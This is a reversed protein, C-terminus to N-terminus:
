QLLIMSFEPKQQYQSAPIAGHSSFTLSLMEYKMMLNKFFYKRNLLNLHKQTVDFM